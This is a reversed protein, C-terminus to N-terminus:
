HRIFIFKRNGTTAALSQGDESVEYRGAAVEQGNQQVTWDLGCAGVWRAVVTYGHDGQSGRGDALLTNQARHREGSETVTVDSITVTEGEVTIDLTAEHIPLDPNATSRQPDLKWKGHLAHKDSRLDELHAKLRPWSAFGYARALEHQADALRVTADREQLQQLLIRPKRGSINSAPIPRCFVLCREETNGPTRWTPSSFNISTVANLALHSLGQGRVPRLRFQAPFGYCLRGLWSM